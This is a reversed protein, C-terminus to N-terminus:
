KKGGKSPPAAKPKVGYTAAARRVTAKQSSTLKPKARGILKVASEATDVSDVPYKDRGNVHVTAAKKRRAASIYTM